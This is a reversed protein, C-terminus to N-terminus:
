EASSYGCYCELWTTIPEGLEPADEIDEPDVSRILGIYRLGITGCQPCTTDPDIQILETHCDERNPM